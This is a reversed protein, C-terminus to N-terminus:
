TGLLDPNNPSPSTSKLYHKLINPANKVQQSNPYPVKYLVKAVNKWTGGGARVALAAEKTANDMAAPRGRKRPAVATAVHLTQGLVTGSQAQNSENPVNAAAEGERGAQSEPRLPGDAARELSPFILVGHSEDFDPEEEVATWPLYRSRTPVDSWGESNAKAHEEPSHVVRYSGGAHYLEKPYPWIKKRQELETLPKPARVFKPRNADSRQSTDPRSQVNVVYSGLRGCFRRRAKEINPEDSRHGFPEESVWLRDRCFRALHLWLDLSTWFHSIDSATLRGQHQQRLLNEIEVAVHFLQREYGFNRNPTRHATLLRARMKVDEFEWESSLRCEIEPLKYRNMRRDVLEIQDATLPASSQSPLQGEDEMRKMISPVIDAGCAMWGDEFRQDWTWESDFDADKLVDVLWPGAFQNGRGSLPELKIPGRWGNDSRSPSEPWDYAPGNLFGEAEKRTAFSM